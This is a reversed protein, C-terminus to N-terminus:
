ASKADEFFLKEFFDKLVHPINLSDTEIMERNYEDLLILAFIKNKYKGRIGFKFDLLVEITAKHPLEKCDAKFKLNKFSIVRGSNIKRTFKACLYNNIEQKRIPVFANEKGRAKKAFRRNYNKIFQPLFTNAQEITKIGAIQMEVVLRSQLTEWLREIRGKSEPNYAPFMDIGLEEVIRGFQTPHHPKDALQEEITLHQDKKPSHFFVSFRDPYLMMPIGYNTLTQRLVELYGYLCENRAFYLGTINGTADDIFGHLTIESGNSLWDHPSGDAQLMMGILEKRERTPHATLSVKHKKNSLYGEAICIRRVTQYSLSINLDRQVLEQFHQYNANIYGDKKRLEVVSAYIHENLKKSSPKNKNGHIFAEDGIKRYKAKLQKIRRTSLKLLDSAEAVTVHGMVAMHIVHSKKLEKKSMIYNM